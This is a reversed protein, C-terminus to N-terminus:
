QIRARFALFNLCKSYSKSGNLSAAKGETIVCVCRSM